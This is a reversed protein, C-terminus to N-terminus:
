TTIEALPTLGWLLIPKWLLHLNTTCDEAKTPSNFSTTKRPKPTKAGTFRRFNGSIAQFLRFLACASQQFQRFIALLTQFPGLENCLFPQTNAGRINRDQGDDLPTGFGVALFFHRLDSVPHQPLASFLAGPGTEKTAEVYARLGSCKKPVKGPEGHRVPVKWLVKEASERAPAEASRQIAALITLRICAGLTSFHLARLLHWKM